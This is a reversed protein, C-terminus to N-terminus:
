KQDMELAVLDDVFNEIDHPAYKNPFLKENIFITPTHSINNKICWNRHEEVICNISKDNSQGWQHLWDDISVKSNWYSFAEEFHEDEQLYLELLREIIQVSPDNKDNREVFFRIRVQIKGPHEKLQDILKDHLDYCLTCMPNTIVLFTLGANEDGLCIDKITDSNTETKNIANYYPIFLRHDRRFSLNDIMTKQWLLGTALQGKIKIWTLISLIFFALAPIISTFEFYLKEPISFLVLIQALLVGVLLLCMPCLKKIRFVQHFISYLIIPVSFLSLTKFLFTNQSFIFTMTIFSFYVMAADALDILNFIQAERSNLVTQCNTLKSISCLESPEENQQFKDVNIVWSLGLGLVSLVFYLPKLISGTAIGIYCAILLSCVVIISSVISKNKNKSQPNENKEISLLVGTWRSLFEHRNMIHSAKNFAEILIGDNQKIALVLSLNNEGGAVQAIFCPPLEDLYEKPVRAVVNKVNFYEFTNTVPVLGNNPDSFLREKIRMRDIDYAHVTLLRHM